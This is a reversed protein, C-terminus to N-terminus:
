ATAFSINRAAADAMLQTWQESTGGVQESPPTMGTLYGYTTAHVTVTEATTNKANDVLWRLSTYNLKPSDIFSAKGGKFESILVHELLECGKFTNNFSKDAVIMPFDIKRLKKLFAFTYVFLSGVRGTNSRALAVYELQSSDFFTEYCISTNSSIIASATPRFLTRAKSSSYCGAIYPSNKPFRMSDNYILAMQEETIDTLGNLEYYGTAENFKAGEAEYLRRMTTAAKTAKDTATESETKLRGFESVRENEANVRSTESAVRKSESDARASEASARKSEAEARSSEAAARESENSKRGSEASKRLVEENARDSEARVRDSEASKRETESVERLSEKSVRSNENQQRVSESEIRALESKVRQTEASLRSQEAKNIDENIKNAAQTTAKASKAASIANSAAANASSTANESERKLTSFESARQQEASIRETEAAARESEKKIRASENDKRLQENSNRQQEAEDREQEKNILEGAINEVIDIRGQLKVVQEQAFNGKETAFTAASNASKAAADAASAKETANKTALDASSASSNAAEAAHEAMVAMDSANAAASNARDAMKNAKDAASEANKVANELNEYDISDLGGTEGTASWVGTQDCRYIQGPVSDGVTAWWGVEPFPYRKQLSALDHFLGKNPQKVGRARIIGGVTLDNNIVVDGEHLDTKRGYTEMPTGTGSWIRNYKNWRFVVGNVTAYDGEHGGEPHAEWLEQLSNFSGLNNKDM